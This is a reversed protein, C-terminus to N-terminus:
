EANEPEKNETEPEATEPKTEATRAKRRFNSTPPPPAIAAPPPQRKLMEQINPPAPPRGGLSGLLGGLLGAIEEKHDFITKVTEPIWHGASEEPFAADILREQLSPNNVGLAKELIRLNEPVPESPAPEPRNAIEAKLDAIQEKLRAEEDGFLADKLAMMKTLITLM